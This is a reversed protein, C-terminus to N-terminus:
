YQETMDLYVVRRWGGTGGCTHVHSLSEYLYDSTKQLEKTINSLVSQELESNVTILNSELTNLINQVEILETTIQAKHEQLDAVAQSLSTVTASLSTLDSRVSNFDVKMEKMTPM